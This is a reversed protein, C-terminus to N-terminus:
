HRTEHARLHTYSVAVSLHRDVEVPDLIRDERGVLPLQDVFDEGPVLLVVWDPEKPEVYCSTAIFIFAIRMWAWPPASTRTESCIGLGEGPGPSPKPIQESVLVEAGGHAHIRIAKMKM